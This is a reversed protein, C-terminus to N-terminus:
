LITTPWIANSILLFLGAGAAGGALSATVPIWGYYWESPGKNPIPMLAHVIRPGLDRAPNVSFGTTGGLGLVQCVIFLGVYLPKLVAGTLGQRTSQQDILFIGVVLMVTAIFESIWNFPPAYVAPRTTFVSLKANQDAIVAAQYLAMIRQKEEEFAENAVQLANAAANDRGMASGAGGGSEPNSSAVRRMSGLKVLTPMQGGAAVGAAAPIPKGGEAGNLATLSQGNASSFPSSLAAPRSPVQGGAAEAPTAAGPQADQTAHELEVGVAPRGGAEVQAADLQSNANWALTQAVASDIYGVEAPVPGPASLQTSAADAPGMANSTYYLGPAVMKLQATLHEQLYTRQLVSRTRLDLEEPDTHRSSDSRGTDSRLPAGPLVDENGTKHTTLRMMSAAASDLGHEEDEQVTELANRGVGAAVDEHESSRYRTLAAPTPADSANEGDSEILPARSKWDEPARFKDHQVAYYMFDSVWDKVTSVVNEQVKNTAEAVMHVGNRLAELEDDGLAQRTRQSGVSSQSTRTGLASEVGSTAINMTRAKRRRITASRELAAQKQERLVPAAPSPNYSAIEIANKTLEDRKRLLNDGRNPSPPEPVTKFHPLWQLWVLIGGLIAGAMESASLAFFETVNSKGLVLNALCLAPNLNASIHGFFVAPFMFALGYGLAIWGFGMSQGKAKPLIANAIVSCGLWIGVM